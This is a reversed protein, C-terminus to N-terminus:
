TLLAVTNNLVHLVLGPVLSGSRARLWGCALGILLIPPIAWLRDLHLVGFAVAQLVLAARPGFTRGLLSQGWGRFLAEEVLPAVVVTYGALFGWEWGHAGALAEALGQQEVGVGAAMLGASWAVTAGVVGLALLPAAGLWRWGPWGVPLAEGRVAGAVVGGVNGAATGGVAAVLWAGNLSAMADPSMAGGLAVGCGITLVGGMGLALGGVLAAEALGVAWRAITAAREPGQAAFAHEVWVIGRRAGWRLGVGLAAGAGVAVATIGAVVAAAAQPSVGTV